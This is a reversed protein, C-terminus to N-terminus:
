SDAKKKKGDDPLRVAEDMAQELRRMYASMEETPVVMEGLAVELIRAGKAVNEIVHKLTKMDRGVFYLKIDFNYGKTTKSIAVSSAGGGIATLDLM